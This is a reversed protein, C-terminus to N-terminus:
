IEKFLKVVKGSEIAKDIQELRRIKAELREITLDQEILAARLAENERELTDARLREKTAEIRAKHAHDNFMNNLEVPYLPNEIEPAKLRRDHPQIRANHWRNGFFSLDGCLLRLIMYYWKPAHNDREYRTITHHSINLTKSLQHLDIKSEIRLNEFQHEGICLWDIFENNFNGISNM